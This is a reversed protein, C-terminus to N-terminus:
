TSQQEQNVRRIVMVVAILLVVHIWGGTPHGSVLNSVVCALWLISLWAAIPYM